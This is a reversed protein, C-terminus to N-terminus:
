ELKQFVQQEVLRSLHREMQGPLKGGHVLLGLEVNLTMAYQTLNASSVLLTQGDAVAFKAHLSGHRGHEDTKRRLLPWVYVTVQRTVASGLAQVTNYAIRGESASPTELYLSISVGRNAATVLAEAIVDVKYVAFSVVHLREKASSILQLLVQDTRRLPVVHSDPGTWVLELQQTTRCYTEMDAAALLALAVREPSVDPAERQWEDLFRTVQHTVDPQSVATLARARVGSWPHDQARQLADALASVLEDPLDYVLRRIAPILAASSM